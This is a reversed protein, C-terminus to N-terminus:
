AKFKKKEWKTIRYAAHRGTFLAIPLGGPPMVWQGAIVFNKLGDILGTDMLKEHSSTTVFSQYSGRYSNCYREYTLPTTLDIFKIEDDALKFYNKLHNLIINGIKEKEKLYEERSLSKYTDYLDDGVRILVTMTTFGDNLTKDFSYNRPNLVSIKTKGIYFPEIDFEIMRPINSIDKTVKYSALVCLSLPNTERKNFRKHYFDVKFQNDLLKDLTYHVDIASIVYDAKVIEDNDLIVGVAKNDEVLIKKVSTNLVLNGGVNKFREAIRLSVNLSGGEPIGADNQSLAQMIYLLSHLNYDEFLAKKFTKELLKSKCKEAFEKVTIHTYKLYPLLMPLMRLGIKTYDWLNMVDMPKEVPITVHQYHKIGRIFENIIKKDDPGIRLLEQKLLKLDSYFTVIEGDIDYKNFYDTLYIKTNEDFAGIHKWIPFLQLKPNVGVIWHLCGDIFAGDRKWGTCQGGPISHKEYITVDFGNEQAYIGATMGSIGAGIIIAKKKEM